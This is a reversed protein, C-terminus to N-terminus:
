KQCPEDETEIEFETFTVDGDDVLEKRKSDRLEKSFYLAIDENPVTSYQTGNWYEAM